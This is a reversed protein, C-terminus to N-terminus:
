NWLWNFFQVMEDVLEWKQDTRQIALGHRTNAFFVRSNEQVYQSPIWGIGLKQAAVTKKSVSIKDTKEIIIM